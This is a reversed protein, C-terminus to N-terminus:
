DTADDEASLWTSPWASADLLGRRRAWLRVADVGHPQRSTADGRPPLPEDEWRDANLWTSPWATYTPERNPDARYRRAGAIIEAPSARTLARVWAKRASGVAEHRPYAAWFAEFTEDADPRPPVIPPNQSNGRATGEPQEEAFSKGTVRNQTAPLGTRLQRNGGKQGIDGSVRLHYRDPGRGGQKSGQHARDLYGDAQLRALHTRVTRVSQETDAALTAQSPYCSDAEDAYEALAMLLAKRGTNGVRQAKAWRLTDFSM